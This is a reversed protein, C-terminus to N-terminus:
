QEEEVGCRYCRCFRTGDKAEGKFRWRHAYTVGEGKCDPCPAQGDKTAIIGQGDCTSCERECPNRDDDEPSRADYAAQARDFSKGLSSM